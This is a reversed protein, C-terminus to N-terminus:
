KIRGQKRVVNNVRTSDQPLGKALSLNERYREWIYSASRYELNEANAVNLGLEYGAYFMQELDGTEFLKSM